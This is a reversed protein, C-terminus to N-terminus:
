NLPRDTPMALATCTGSPNIRPSLRLLYYFATAM